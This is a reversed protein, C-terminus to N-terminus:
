RQCSSPRSQRPRGLSSRRRKLRRRLPPGLASPRSHLLRLGRAVNLRLTMSLSRGGKQARHHSRRRRRRRKRTRMTMMMMTMMMMMMRLPTRTRSRRRARAGARKERRLRLRRETPCRTCNPSPRIFLLVFILRGIPLSFLFLYSSFVIPLPASM